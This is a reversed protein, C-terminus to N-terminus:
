EARLTALPKHRLVDLSAVVGVGAVLLGTVVIGVLSLVPNPQWPMELAFESIGWSLV